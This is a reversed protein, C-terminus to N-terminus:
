LFLFCIPTQWPRLISCPLLPQSCSELQLSSEHAHFREASQSPHNVVIQVQCFEHFQVDFCRVKRTNFFLSNFFTFSLRPGINEFYICSAKPLEIGWQNDFKVIKRRWINIRWTVLYIKNYFRSPNLIM